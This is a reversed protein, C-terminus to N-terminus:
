LIGEIAYRDWGVKHEEKLLLLAPEKWSSKRDEFFTKANSCCLNWVLIVAQQDTFKYPM